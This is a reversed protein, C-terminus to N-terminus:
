QIGAIMWRMVNVTPYKGKNDSAMKQFEHQLKYFHEQKGHLDDLLIQKRKLDEATHLTEGLSECVPCELGAVYKMAVKSHCTSCTLFESESSKARERVEANFNSLTKLAQNFEAKARIYEASYKPEKHWYKVALAVGENNAQQKLKTRAQLESCYVENYLVRLSSFIGINNDEEEEDLDRYEAQLDKFTDNISKVNAIAFTKYIFDSVAYRRYLSIAKTQIIVNYRM